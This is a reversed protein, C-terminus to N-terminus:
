ASKLNINFKKGDVLFVLTGIRGKILLERAFERSYNRHDLGVWARFTQDPLVAIRSAGNPNPFWHGGLQVQLVNFPFEDITVATSKYDSLQVDASKTSTNRLTIYCKLPFKLETDPSPSPSIRCSTTTINPKSQDLQRSILYGGVLGGLVGLLAIGFFWWNFNVIEPLWHTGVWAYLASGLAIIVAAIVKSWVPDHWLRTMEVAM